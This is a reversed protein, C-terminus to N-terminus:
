IKNKFIKNELLGLLIVKFWVTFKEPNQRVEKELDTMSIWKWNEAEDRNIKAEENYKGMFVHDYENETLENNVRAEYNFGFVEKLECDFGMEEMLRRHAAAETQEGPRPHSCCTNTWLGGCHYKSIARQQLMLENKDNFILVSFARHKTGGNLHAAMKELTGLQKDQEDVLIVQEAM